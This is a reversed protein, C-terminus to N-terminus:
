IDFVGDKTAYKRWIENGNEDLKLLNIRGNSNSGGKSGGDIFYRTLGISTKKIIPCQGEDNHNIYTTPTHGSIITKNQFDKHIDEKSFTQETYIYPDRIWLVTDRFQQDIPLDLEFGAHTIIVKNHALVLPLSKLWEMQDHYHYLLQERLEYPNTFSLGLNDLTNARGNHEWWTYKYPNYVADVIFEDHNGLIAKAKGSDCLDKIFTWTNITANPALNFGDSYDGGFWFEVNHNNMEPLNNLHQLAEFNGHIDSLFIIEKSM